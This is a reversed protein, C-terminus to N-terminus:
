SAAPTDGTADFTLQDGVFKGDAVLNSIVLNTRYLELRGERLHFDGNFEPQGLTGALEIEGDLKGEARDIEPVVLPLM